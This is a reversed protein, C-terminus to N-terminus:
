EVKFSIGEVFIVMGKKVKIPYSALANMYQKSNKLMRFVGEGSL